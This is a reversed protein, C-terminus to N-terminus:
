VLDSPKQHERVTCYQTMIGRGQKAKSQEAITKKSTSDTGALLNAHLTRAVDCSARMIRVSM